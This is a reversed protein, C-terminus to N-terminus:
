LTKLEKSCYALDALGANSLDTHSERCTQKVEDLSLFLPDFGNTAHNSKISFKMECCHMGLETGETLASSNIMLLFIILYIM